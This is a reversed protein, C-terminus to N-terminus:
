ACRPRCHIDVFPVVFRVAPLAGTRWDELRRRALWSLVNLCVPSFDSQEGAKALLCNIVRGKGTPVQLIRIFGGDLCACILSRVDFLSSFVAALRRNILPGKGFLARTRRRVKGCHAKREEACASNVNPMLEISEGQSLFLFLPSFYPQPTASLPATETNPMREISEGQLLVCLQRPSFLQPLSFCPSNVNPMLEISEGQPLGFVDPLPTADHTRSRCLALLM